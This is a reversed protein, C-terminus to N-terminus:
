ESLGARELLEFIAKRSERHRNKWVHQVLTRHCSTVLNPNAGHELLAKAFEVRGFMAAIMLATQGFGNVADVNIRKSHLLLEFSKPCCTDVLPPVKNADPQNPDAGSNLLVKVNEPLGLARSLPPTGWTTQANVNAGARILASLVAPQPKDAAEILVQDLGKESIAKCIALSSYDRPLDLITSNRSTCLCNLGSLALSQRFRVAEAYHKDNPLLACSFNARM